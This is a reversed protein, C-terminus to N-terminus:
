KRLLQLVRARGGLDRHLQTAFGAEHAIAAVSDAQSAGIEVLAVGGPALLDPLWPVLSYGRRAQFEAAMAETWNQQGVEWSDTIVFGLGDKGYLDGLEAKLPELLGRMHSRVHDANLKDVELGLSEAAAPTDRRGTLSWGYRLVRWRGAPPTWDLAGDPKLRSTLNLVQGPAVFFGTGMSETCHIAVTSPLVREAVQAPTLRELAAPSRKWFVVTGAVIVIGGVVAAM